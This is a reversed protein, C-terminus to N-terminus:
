CYRHIFCSRPLVRRRRRRRDIFPDAFPRPPARRSWRRDIASALGTGRPGDPGPTQPAMDILSRAWRHQDAQGSVIPQLVLVGERSGVEGPLIRTMTSTLGVAPPGASLTRSGSLATRAKAIRDTVDLTLMSRMMTELGGNKFQLVVLELKTLFSQSEVAVHLDPVTLVWRDGQQTVAPTGWLYLMGTAAGRIPMRALVRGSADGAEFGEVTVSHDGDGFHHGVIQPAVRSQLETYPIAVDLSVDFQDKLPEVRVLAGTHSTASAAAPCAGLTVRPAVDAGIKLKLDSGAGGVPSLVFQEPDLDLCADGQDGLQLPQPARLADLASELTPGMPIRIQQAAGALLAAFPQAVADLITGLPVQVPGCDLKSRIDPKWSLHDLALEGGPRLTPATEARFIIGADNGHCRIGGGQAGVDGLLAVELALGDKEARLVVPRRSLHWTVEVDHIVLLDVKKSGTVEPPIAREIQGRLGDLPVDGHVFAVSRPPRMDLARPPVNITYTPISPQCAAPVLPALLSFGALCAPRLHPPLM